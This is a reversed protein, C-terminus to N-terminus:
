VEQTNLTRVLVDIFIKISNEINQDTLSINSSYCSIFAPQKDVNM